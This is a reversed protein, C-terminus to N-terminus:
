HVATWSSDIKYGKIIEVNEDFDAGPTYPPPHPNNANAKYRWIFNFKGKIKFSQLDGYAQPLTVTIPTHAAWFSQNASLTTKGTSYTLEVTLEADYVMFGNCKGSPAFTIEDKSLLHTVPKADIELPDDFLWGAQTPLGLLLFIALLVWKANKMCTGGLNCRASIGFVASNPSAKMKVRKTEM